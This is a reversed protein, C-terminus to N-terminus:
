NFSEGKLCEIFTFIFDRFTTTSFSTLESKLGGGGKGWAIIKMFVPVFPHLYTTPCRNPCYSLSSYVIYMIYSSFLWSILNKGWYRFFIMYKIHAGVVFIKGLNCSKVDPHVLGDWLWDPAIKQWRFSRQATKLLSLKSPFIIPLYLFIGMLDYKPFRAPM